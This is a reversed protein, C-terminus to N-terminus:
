RQNLRLTGSFLKKKLLAVFYKQVIPQNYNIQSHKEKLKHLFIFLYQQVKCAVTFIYSTQRQDRLYRM